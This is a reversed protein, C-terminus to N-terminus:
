EELVTTKLGLKKELLSKIEFSSNGTNTVYVHITIDPHNEDHNDALVCVRKFSLDKENLESEVLTKINEKILTESQESVKKNLERNTYDDHNKQICTPIHAVTSFIPNIATCILFVSLVTKITKDLKSNPIMLETITGIIAAFIVIIVQNKISDM